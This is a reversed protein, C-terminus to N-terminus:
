YLTRPVSSTIMHSAIYSESTLVEEAVCLPVTSVYFIQPINARLTNYIDSYNAGIMGSGKLSYGGIFNVVYNGKNNTNLCKVYM